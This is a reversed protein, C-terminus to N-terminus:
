CEPLRAKGDGEVMPEFATEYDGNQYATMGADFDAWAVPSLVKEFILVASLVVVLRSPM